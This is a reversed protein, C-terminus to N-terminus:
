ATPTSRVRSATWASPRSTPVAVAHLGEDDRQALLGLPQRHAQDPLQALGADGRVGDVAPAPELARHLGGVPRAGRVDDDDAFPVQGLADALELVHAGALLAGDGHALQEVRHTRAHPTVEM